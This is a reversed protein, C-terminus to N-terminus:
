ALTAGYEQLLLNIDAYFVDSFCIRADYVSCGFQAATSSASITGMAKVERTPSTGRLIVPGGSNGRANVVAIARPSSAYVASEVELTLHVSVPLLYSVDVRRIVVECREGSFSGSTCVELGAINAGTTRVQTVGETADGVGGSFIGAGARGAAISIAESDRTPLTHGVSGIRRAGAAPPPGTFVPAAAGFCHFATLLLQANDRQRVAGFGSTCQGTNDTLRGGGYWPSTDLLRGTPEPGPKVDVTVPVGAAAGLIGAAFGPSSVSDVGAILGFGEEPVTVTHITGGIQAALSPNGLLAGVRSRLDAKTYDGYQRLVSIPEGPNAVIAAIPPPLQAETRVWCLLLRATDRDASLGTFGSYGTQDVLDLIRHGVRELADQGPSPGLQSPSPPPQCPPGPPPATVTGSPTPTPTPPPSLTVTVTASITPEPGIAGVRGAPAAVAAATGILSAVATSAALLAGHRRRRSPPHRM